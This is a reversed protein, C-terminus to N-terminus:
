IKNVYLLIFLVSLFYKILLICYKLCLLQSRFHCKNVCNYLLLKKSYSKLSTDTTKKNCNMFLADLALKFLALLCILFNVTYEIIIQNVYEIALAVWLSKQCTQWRSVIKCLNFHFQCDVVPKLQNKYQALRLM